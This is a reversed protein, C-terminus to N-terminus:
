HITVACPKDFAHGRLAAIEIMSTSYTPTFGGDYESILVPTGDIVAGDIGSGCDGIPVFTPAGSILTAPQSSPVAVMITYHCYGTGQIQDLLWVDSKPMPIVTLNSTEMETITAVLEASAGHDRRLEEAVSYGSVPGADRTPAFRVFGDPQDALLALPEQM